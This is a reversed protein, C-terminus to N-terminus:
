VLITVSRPPRGSFAASAAGSALYGIGVPPDPRIQLPCTRGKKCAAGGGPQELGSPESGVWAIAM